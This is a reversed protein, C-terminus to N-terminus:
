KKVKAEQLHIENWVHGCHGCRYTYRFDKIDITIPVNEKLGLPAAVTGGFVVPGALVGVKAADGLGIQVTRTKDDILREDTLRIHFRRGCAPCYRFFTAVKSM